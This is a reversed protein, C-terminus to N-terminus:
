RSRSTLPLRLGVMSSVCPWPSAWSTGGNRRTSGWNTARHLGDRRHGPKAALSCAGSAPLTNRFAMIFDRVKCSAGQSRQCSQVFANLATSM